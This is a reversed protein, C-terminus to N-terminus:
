MALESSPPFGHVRRGEDADNKMSSKYLELHGDTALPRYKDRLAQMSVEDLPTFDDAIRVHHDLAQQSDIGTITTLVGPLSMAYRLADDPAV